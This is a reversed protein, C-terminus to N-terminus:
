CLVSPWKTLSDAVFSAVMASFCMQKSLLCSERAFLFPNIPYIGNCNEGNSSIGNCFSFKSIHWELKRIGRAIGNVEFVLEYVAGMSNYTYKYEWVSILFFLFLPVAGFGM